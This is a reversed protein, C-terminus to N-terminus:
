KERGTKSPRWGFDLWPARVRRKYEVGQVQEAGHGLGAHCAVVPQLHCAHALDQHHVSAARTVLLEDKHRERGSASLLHGIM